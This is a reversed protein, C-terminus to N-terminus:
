RNDEVSKKGDSNKLPRCIKGFFGPWALPVPDYGSPGFPRCCLLRRLALWGGRVTGYRELAEMAYVSCTPFFRCCGGIHPSLWIKYARVALIAARKM